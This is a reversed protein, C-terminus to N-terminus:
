PAGFFSAPTIKNRQTTESVKDQSRLSVPSQDKSRAEPVGLANFRIDEEEIAFGGLFLGPCLFEPNVIQARVLVERELLIGEFASIQVIENGAVIRLVTV